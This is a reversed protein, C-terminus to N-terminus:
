NKIKLFENFDLIYDDINYETSCIVLLTSDETLFKQSDWILKDVVIYDGKKIKIKEEVFGDHLIVEIEGLICVLIQITSFHSHGGRISDKPVNSVTFIRKPIFTLKSFEFPILDGREDSFINLKKIEKEM